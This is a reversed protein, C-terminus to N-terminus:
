VVGVCAYVILTCESPTFASQGDDTCNGSISLYVAEWGKDHYDWRGPRIILTRNSGIAFIFYYVLGHIQCGFGCGGKIHM